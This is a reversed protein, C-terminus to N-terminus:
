SGSVCSVYTQSSTNYTHVDGTLLSVFSYHSGSPTSSWYYNGTAWGKEKFMKGQAKYLGSLEYSAALDWDSKGNLKIKNYQECLLVAQDHKFMAFSGKPGYSGTEYVVRYYVDYDIAQLFSKSPNGTYLKGGSEVIKICDGAANTKDDDGVQGGCLYANFTVKSTADTEKGTSTTYSSTVDFTMNETPTPYTTNWKVRVIQDGSEDTKSTEAVLIPKVEVSTDPHTGPSVDSTISYGEVPNGNQDTLTATVVGGEVSTYPATDITAESTVEATEEDGIFKVDYTETVGGVDLTLTVTEAKLSTLKFEAIGQSDTTQTESDLQAQGSVSASVVTDPRVEDGLKLEVFVSGVDVGNAVAQSSSTALVDILGQKICTAYYFVGPIVDGTQADNNDSLNVWKPAGANDDYALYANKAPWNYSAQVQIDEAMQTLQTVTPLSAGNSECFDNATTYVFGAMDIAPVYDIDSLKADYSLDINVADVATLPATFIDALHAIDGWKSSQNPDVVKVRILGMDYVGNHDSVAFSIYHYGPKSAQFTIIKNTIDSADKPNAEANFSEIYVLQFDDTDDSSVFESIDIDIATSVDITGPYEINEDISFGKNAEYGVAVDLVGMLVSGNTSDELTYLVRDIGTFGQPPSYQIVQGDSNKVEASSGRSYPLTLETLTFGEGLTFGVKSLEEKLSVDIGQNVLTVASVPILEVSSPDSSVAVRTIASSSNGATVDLMATAGQSQGSIKASAKPAVHYRYNCVKTDSAQIVFGSETISEIQCNSENSLMEIDTLAFGGGTSSFVKSSLDVQFLDSYGTSYTADQASVTALQEDAVQGTSTEGGDGGGGGCGYLTLATAVILSSPATGGLINNLRNM